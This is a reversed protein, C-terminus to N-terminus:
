SKGMGSSGSTSPSARSRFLRSDPRAMARTSMAAKLARFVKSGGSDARLPAKTTSTVRCPLNMSM